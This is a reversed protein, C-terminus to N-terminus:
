PHWINASNRYGALNKYWDTYLTGGSEAWTAFYNYASLVSVKEWPYDFNVPINLAWPLNNTTKYYRGIGPQTNDDGTGFYPCNQALTTPVYNPLHIEAVREMNRILFPNYPPTGLATTLMPTTLHISLTVTDATGVPAGMVTNFFVPTVRHIVNDTNDFPIIVAKAQGSETGNASLTIYNYKLNYGTVSAIDGPVLNDFQIGFGNQFSAGAAKVYLKIQIDTVKNQVNTTLTFKYYMVLDNLDYDGKEPWLDEYVATGTFVNGVPAPPPNVGEPNCESTPITNLINAFSVFTAGGTFNTMDGSTMVGNTQATEIPGTIVKPGDFRLMDTVKIENRTGYGTVDANVRLDKTSIMSGNYLKMFGTGGQMYAEEFCKLYGTQNTFECNNLHFNGHVILACSNLFISHNCEMDGEVEITGLNTAQNIVNWKDEIHMYAGGGNIFNGSSGNMNMQGYVTMLNYNEVEDNPTFVGAIHCSGWNQFLGDKSEKITVPASVTGITGTSSVKLTSTKGNNPKLDITGTTYTGCIQLTGDKVTIDGTYSAIIYYTHGDDITFNASGILTYPATAASCDPGLVNASKMKTAGAFTYSISANVPVSAIQGVGSYPILQLWLQSVGTPIRVKALMPNSNGTWGQYVLEGGKTPDALYVNVKNYQFTVAPIDMGINLTVEQTMEWNFSQSIQLDDMTKAKPTTSYDKHCGSIFIVSSALVFLLLVKTKM